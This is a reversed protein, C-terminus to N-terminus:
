PPSKRHLFYLSNDPLFFSEWHEPTISWKITLFFPTTLELSFESEVNVNGFSQNLTTPSGELMDAQFRVITEFFLKNKEDLYKQFSIETNNLYRGLSIATSEPLTTETSFLTDPVKYIDSSTFDKWVWLEIEAFSM